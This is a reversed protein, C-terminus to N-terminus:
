ELNRISVVVKNTSVPMWWVNLDGSWRVWGSAKWLVIEATGVRDPLLRVAWIREWLAAM